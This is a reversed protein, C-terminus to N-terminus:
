LNQTKKTQLQHKNSNEKKENYDHTSTLFHRTYNESTSFYSFNM